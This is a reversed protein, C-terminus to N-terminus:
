PMVMRPQQGPQESALQVLRLEDEISVFYVPRNPDFHAIIMKGQPDIPTTAKFFFILVWLAIMATATIPNRLCLNRLYLLIALWVSERSAPRAARVANGLIKAQWAAPLEPPPMDRLLQELKEDNM